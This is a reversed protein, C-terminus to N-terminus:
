LGVKWGKYTVAHSEGPKVIHKNTVKAMVYVINGDLSMEIGSIIEDVVFHRAETPSLILSTGGISIDYCPRNIQFVHNKSSSSIKGFSLFCGNNSFSHREMERKEVFAYEEPVRITVEGNEVKIIDGQFLFLDRPYFVNLSEKGTCISNFSEKDEEIPMIVLERKKKRYVRIRSVSTVKQGGVFRWVIMEHGNQQVRSTIDELVVSDKSKKLNSEM